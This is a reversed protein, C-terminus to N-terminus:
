VTLLDDAWAIEILLYRRDDFRNRQEILIL